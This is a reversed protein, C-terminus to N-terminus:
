LEGVTDVPIDIIKSITELPDELSLDFRDRHVWVPTWEGDINFRRGRRYRDYGMESLYHSPPYNENAERYTLEELRKYVILDPRILPENTDAVHEEIALTMRNKSAEIIEETFETRPASDNPKFDGSIKWNLLWHRLAGGHKEIVRVPHAFWGEDQLERVQDRSQIPSKIAFFRRSNEDLHLADLFNTLIVFNAFIRRDASDEYRKNRTVIDNTLPAKLKNIFEARNRGPIKFEDILLYLVDFQWDNWESAVVDPNIARTNAAGAAARVMDFLLNKGCGEAGQIVLAWRTRLGPNQFPYAFFDIATRYHEGLVRKAHEEFVAGVKASNIPDLPPLSNPRFRNLLKVGTKPDTLYPDADLRSPDYTTGMVKPIKLKNLVMDVPLAAPRCTVEADGGDAQAPMLEASYLKNFADPIVEHGTAAQCFKNTHALYCWPLAWPHQSSDRAETVIERKAQRVGKVITPLSVTGGGLVQIRERLAKVLMEELIPSKFPIAAIRRPGETTLTDLTECAAIWGEAQRKVKASLRDTKWGAQQAHHFLTRITVPRRGSPDPRYSRWKREVDETGRYKELGTASWEDLAHFAAEAEEEDRFQHVLAAVVEIWTKYDCDADIANLPEVIDEVSLDMVPLDEIGGEATGRHGYVRDAEATAAEPIDFEDMAQGGTRSGIIAAFEEGLFQVPRYMPQVTVNSERKGTYDPPLGLLSAIGAVAHHYDEPLLGDADVLIRIRPSEPTSNATHYILCNFPHLQEVFHQPAEAIDHVYSRGGKDPDLDICVLNILRARDSRREDEDDEFSCPLVYPGDKNRNRTDDDQALFDKRTFPLAVPVHFYREVLERFNAAKLRRVKNSRVTAGGFYRRDSM